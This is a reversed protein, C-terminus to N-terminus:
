LPTDPERQAELGRLRDLEADIEADVLHVEERVAAAEQEQQEFVRSFADKKKFQSGYSNRDPKVKLGVPLNGGLYVSSLGWTPGNRGSSPGMTLKSDQVVQESRYRALYMNTSGFSLNVVGHKNLGLLYTLMIKAEKQVVEDNENVSYRGDICVKLDLGKEDLEINFPLKGYNKRYSAIVVESNRLAIRGM